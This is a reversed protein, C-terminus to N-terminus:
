KRKRRARYKKTAITVARRTRCMGIWGELWQSMPDRGNQQWWEEANVWETM